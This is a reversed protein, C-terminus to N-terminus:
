QKPRSQRVTHSSLNVLLFSTVHEIAAQIKIDRSARQSVSWALAVPFIRSQTRQRESSVSINRLPAIIVDDTTKVLQEIFNRFKPQASVFCPMLRSMRAICVFSYNSSVIEARVNGFLTRRLEECKTSAAAWAGEYDNHRAINPVIKDFM